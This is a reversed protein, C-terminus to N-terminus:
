AGFMAGIASAGLKMAGTTVQGWFQNNSITKATAAQRDAVYMSTMANTGAVSKTTDSQIQAIQEAAASTRDVQHMKVGADLSSSMISTRSGIDAIQVKATADAQTRATLGNDQIWTMALRTSNNLADMAIAGSNQIQTNFIGANSQIRAQETQQSAQFQAISSNIAQGTLAANTRAMAASTANNMADYYAYSAISNNSSLVDSPAGSSQPASKRSFAMLVVGGVVVAGIVYPSKFNM